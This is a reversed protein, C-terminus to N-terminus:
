QIQSRYFRPSASQPDTVTQASGNGLFSSLTQWDPLGLSSSHQITYTRGSQTLIEFKFVGSEIRPNFLGNLPPQWRVDVLVPDSTIIAGQNDTVKATLTYSGAPPKALILNYPPSTLQGLSVSRDFFEVRAVSGDPDSAQAEIHIPAGTLFIANNTPTVIHVQPIVNTDAQGSLSASQLTVNGYDFDFLEKSCYHIVLHQGVSAARYDLTYVAYSDGFVNVISSDTYAPASMDSLYALFDGVAGYLGVYVKLRKTLTDAPLTLSFGNKNGTIFVGTPTQTIASSPRGDSWSYRTYNNAYREVPRSGIRTFNSIREAVQTKRDFSNSSVTGWHTWDLTGETTLDVQAPPTSVTGALSGGSGYVFVEVPPSVAFNGSNDYAVTTLRHHGAVAGDWVFSFPSESDQGLRQPGAYFEVKEIQGDLDSAVAALAISGGQPFNSNAAPATVSTTPPSNAGESSLAAALLTVNGTIDTVPTTATYRVRLTAVPATSAFQLTYLTNPGDRFNDVSTDVYPPGGDSLAAEFRGRAAYAGVYVRLTKVSTDATVRIEFGSGVPTPFGYAWVGHRTDDVALTPTGDNWCYTNPNDTLHFIYVGANTDNPPQLPTFDSIRPSVNAKRTISSESQLGWHVWDVPGAASLNINADRNLQVASGTLMGASSLSPVM